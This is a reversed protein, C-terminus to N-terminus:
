AGVLVVPRNGRGAADARVPQVHAGARALAERAAACAPTGAPMCALGTSPARGFPAPFSGVVASGSGPGSSWDHHDWWIAAGDRVRVDAAGTDALVGDVYFFWDVPRGDRQGGAVGDVSQVFGGGFRTTIKANRQLLRMVTDAGRVEPRDEDVLVTRGFDRTVLLKADTSPAGPGAGCAPLTAAALVGLLGLAARRRM